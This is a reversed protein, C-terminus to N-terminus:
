PATVAVRRGSRSSEYAADVIRAVQLADRGSAPPVGDGAISRIYDRVFAEGHAGGYSPSAPLSFGIVRTPAAAWAPDTSEAHLRPDGHSWYIRGSSGYFSTYSDYGALNHYGGGHLALAYAIHLSGVAGSHFRLALIAVDEVDISEGSRTAVEAAVSMIEDQAIYRMLDLEHCGLWSLIGGGASAQKFLWSAPDRFRVQTTLLRMEIATLTGILGQGVIARAAQTIPHYRNQYCVGLQRRGEEAAVVVQEVEAANRGIPKEALLHIGAALAKLCIAASIDTPVCVVAFAIDGRRLLADLSTYTQAVKQGQSQQAGALAVEDEDWLVIQEVEPLAQLTRLHALAHPHTVGLLAVRLSNTM